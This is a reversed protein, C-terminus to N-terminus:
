ANFKPPKRTLYLYPSNPISDIQVSYSNSLNYSIVDVTNNVKLLQCLGSHCVGIACHDDRVQAHHTSSTAEQLTVQQNLDKKIESHAHHSVFLEFFLNIFLIILIFLATHKKTM